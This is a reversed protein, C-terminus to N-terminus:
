QSSAQILPLYVYRMPDENTFACRYVQADQPDQQIIIYAYPFDMGTRELLEQMHIIHMNETLAYSALTLASFGGREEPDRFFPPVVPQDPLISVRNPIEHNPVLAVTFTNGQENQIVQMNIELTTTMFATHHPGQPFSIPSRVSVALNDILDERHTYEELPTLSAHIEGPPEEQPITVERLHRLDVRGLVLPNSPDKNQEAQVFLIDRLRRLLYMASGTNRGAITGGGYEDWNFPELHETTISYPDTIWASLTEGFLAREEPTMSGTLEYRESSSPSKRAKGNRQMRAALFLAADHDTWQGNLLHQIEHLPIQRQDCLQIATGPEMQMHSINGGIGRTSTINGRSAQGCPLGRRPWQPNTWQPESDNPDLHTQPIFFIVEPQASAQTNNQSDTLPLTAGLLDPFINDGHNILDATNAPAITITSSIPTSRFYLAGATARNLDNVIADAYAQLSRHQELSLESPSEADGVAVFRIDVTPTVFFLQQEPQLPLLTHNGSGDVTLVATIETTSSIEPNQQQDERTAYTLRRQMEEETIVQEHRSPMTTLYHTYEQASVQPSPGSFVEGLLLGLRLYTPFREM